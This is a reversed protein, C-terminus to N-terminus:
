RYAFALAVAGIAGLLSVAQLAAVSVPVSVGRRQIQHSLHDRGATFPHIRQRLRNIVVFSTDSIPLLVLLVAIAVGILGPAETPRLRVILLALLTGLFYAGADGLYVKAPFWNHWLFGITVGVLATGLLSVMIQGYMMAIVAAGLAGVMVTSGALGDSNDLLNVGNVVVVVWLVLLIADLFANGTVTVRIGTVWALVGVGAQLALRLYANMPQRDDFFGICAAALAPLLVAAALALAGAQSTVVLLLFTAFAFAGAVAVGGLKPIPRVQTKREGDPHDYAGLRHAALISLRVVVGSLLASGVLAALYLWPSM